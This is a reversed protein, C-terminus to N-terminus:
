GTSGKQKSKEPPNRVTTERWRWPYSTVVDGAAPIDRALKFDHRRAAANKRSTLLRAAPRYVPRIWWRPGRSAMLWRPVSQSTLLRELGGWGSTRKRM